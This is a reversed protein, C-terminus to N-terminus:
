PTAIAPKAKARALPEIAKVAPQADAIRKAVKTRLLGDVSPEALTYWYFAIYQLELKTLVAPKESKLWWLDGAKVQDAAVQPDALSAKAAEQIGTDSSKALHSFGKQWDNEVFCYHKGLVINAAIDDPTKALTERAKILSELGKLQRDLESKRDVVNKLVANDQTKRAVSLASELLRKSEDFLEDLVTTEFQEMISRTLKRAVASTMTRKTAAEVSDCFWDARGVFFTESVQAFSSKLGADDGIEVAVDRAESLIAFKGVLDDNFEAGKKLMTALVPLKDEPKKAKALDDKYLDHVTKIAKAIDDANPITVRKSNVPPAVKVAKTPEAPTLPVPIGLLSEGNAPKASPPSTTTSKTPMSPSTTSSAAVAPSSAKYKTPIVGTPLDNTVIQLPFRRKANITDRLKGTVNTDRLDLFILRENFSITSLEEDGLSVGRLLLTELKKANTLLQNLDALTGPTGSLDLWQLNTMKGLTGYGASTLKTSNLALVELAPLAVLQELMQDDLNTKGLNISQLTRISALRKILESDIQCGSLDVLRLNRLKTLSDVLSLAPTKGQFSISRLEFPANPLKSNDYNPPLAQFVEIHLKGEAEQLAEATSREIAAQDAALPLVPRNLSSRVHSQFPNITSALGLRAYQFTARPYETLLARRTAASLSTNGLSLFELRQPSVKLKLLGDDVLTSSLSLSALGKLSNLKMVGQTTLPLRSLGLARLNHCTALRDLAADTLASGDLSLLRLRPLRALDEVGADTISSGTLDLEVLSPLSARLEGARTDSMSRDGFTRLSVIMPLSLVDAWDDNPITAQYRSISIKWIGLPTNSHTSREGIKVQDGDRSIFDVKAIQALRDALDFQHQLSLRPGPNIFPENASESTVDVKAAPSAVDSVVKPGKTPPVAAKQPSTSDSLNQSPKEDSAQKGVSTNTPMTGASPTTSPEGAKASEKANPDSTNSAAPKETDLKENSPGSEVDIITLLDGQSLVMYSTVCAMAMLGAAIAGMALSSRKAPARISESTASSISVGFNFSNSPENVISPITMAMPISTAVPPAAPIPLRTPLSAPPLAANFVPTPLEGVSVALTPVNQLAHVVERMTQYRDDPRKALMRSLVFDVGLPISPFKARVSPIPQERHALIKEVVSDGEYPIAGTILRYLTCGLSYVDARADANRTNLAQEPAMYDVTGMVQGTQTLGENAQAAAGESPDNARALGMDLLKVTGDQCLFLNGPKIDRHVIGQSHAFDLGQAAQVVCQLAQEFAIPGQRKLYNSLDVGEVYEMAFYCLGDAQGAEIARVINPHNLRAVMEAERQFRKVNDASRMSSSSMVKVAVISGNTRHRAKFVNGMGGSGLKDVVIYDNLVLGRTKGQYIAAAQYRTLTGQQVLEKALTQSDASGRDKWAAEVKAIEDATLIKAGSLAEIFGSVKTLDKSGRNEASAM